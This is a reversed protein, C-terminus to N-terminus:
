GEYSDHLTCDYLIQTDRYVMNVTIDYNTFSTNNPSEASLGIIGKKRIKYVSFDYLGM